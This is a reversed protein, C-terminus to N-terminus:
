FTLAELDRKDKRKSNSGWTLNIGFNFCVNSEVPIMSKGTKGMMYDMGMFINFGKPHLNLIWGMETSFTNFGLNIGGDLWNLPAWNASLRGESWHYLDAGYRHTYLFGFSLKDYMPLPYELGMRLTAGLGQTTSGSEDKKELNVFDTLKDSLEDKQVDFTKDKSDSTVALTNFGDFVFPNGSSEAVITNGYSIFGLDTLAISAKLGDLWEASCDKFEYIAGLDLGLGFGNLGSGDVDLGNVKNYKGPRTKYEDQEEKFKAGKVNVQARAKGELLWQDGNLKAHVDNMSFEGYGLGLLVKVKAGVRLNDYIRRSHGFALEAYSWARAGLDTFSYEKNSPNKAFEFFEYPVSLGFHTRSRLEITNYGDFAAWGMSFIPLDMNFILTNTGEEFNSLAEDVSIGPHMFTATKKAGPYQPNGYYPNSYFIDGVGLTGRTQVGINGLVPIAFYTNDNGYAPNMDHRYSYGDTFYASNLDQAVVSGTTAALAAVLMYKRFTNMISM